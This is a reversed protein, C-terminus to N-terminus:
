AQDETDHRLLVSRAAHEYSARHRHRYARQVVVLFMGMMWLLGFTKAVYVLLDHTM